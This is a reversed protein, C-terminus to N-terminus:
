GGPRGGLSEKVDGPLALFPFLEVGGLGFWGEPVIRFFGLLLDARELRDAFDQLSILFDLLGKFVELGKLFEARFIGRKLRFQAGFGM